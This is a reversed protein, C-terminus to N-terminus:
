FVIIILSNVLKVVYYLYIENEMLRLIENFSKGDPSKRHKEQLQKMKLNGTQPCIYYAEILPDVAQAM